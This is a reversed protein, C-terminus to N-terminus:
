QQGGEGRERRELRLIERRIAGYESVEFVAAEPLIEVLRADGISQGVRLFHGRRDEDELVALSSGPAGVFVGTLTLEQFRPGEEGAAAGDTLPVFPDRGGGAYRTMGLTTPVPTIEVDDPPSVDEEQAEAPTAHLAALAVGILVLRDVRM